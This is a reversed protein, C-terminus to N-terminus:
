MGVLYLYLQLNTVRAPISQDLLGAGVVSAALAVPAEVPDAERSVMVSGEACGFKVGCNQKEVTARLSKRRIDRPAM